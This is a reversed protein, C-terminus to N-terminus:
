VKLVKCSGDVTDFELTVFEGYKVFKGTVKKLAERIYHKEVESEEDIGEHNQTIYEQIADNVTDSTKFNVRLKM